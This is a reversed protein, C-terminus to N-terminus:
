GARGERQIRAGFKLSSEPRCVTGRGRNKDGQHGEEEDHEVFDGFLQVVWVAVDYNSGGWGPLNGHREVAVGIGRGRNREYTGGQDQNQKGAWRAFPRFRQRPQLEITIIRGQRSERQRLSHDGDNLRDYLQLSLSSTLPPNPHRAAFGSHM